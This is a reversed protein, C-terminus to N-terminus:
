LLHSSSKSSIPGQSAKERNLQNLMAKREKSKNSIKLIIKNPLRQLVQLLLYLLLKLDLKFSLRSCKEQHFNFKLLWKMKELNMPLLLMQLRKRCLIALIFLRNSLQIRIQQWWCRICSTRSSWIRQYSRRFGQWVLLPEVLGMLRRRRTFTRLRILRWNMIKRNMMKKISQSIWILETLITIM